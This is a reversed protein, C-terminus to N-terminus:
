EEALGEIAFCLRAGVRGARGRYKPQGAISATLRDRINRDLVLVDGCKLSETETVSLQVRGLEVSLNMPISPMLDAIRGQSVERPVATASGPQCLQEVEYMPALFRIVETGRLTELNLTCVMLVDNPDFLRARASRTVTRQYIVPLPDRQPWGESVEQRLREFFM